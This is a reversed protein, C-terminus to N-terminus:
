QGGRDCLRRGDGAGARSPMSRAKHPIAVRFRYKITKVQEGVGEEPPRPPLEFDRKSLFFFFLCGIPHRNKKKHQVALKSAVAFFDISDLTKLKRPPKM